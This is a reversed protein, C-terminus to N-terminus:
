APDLTRYEFHYVAIRCDPSLIEDLIARTVTGSSLLALLQAPTYTAVLSVDGILEGRQPEPAPPGGMEGSNNDCGVLVCLLLHPLIRFPHFGPMANDMLSENLVPNMNPRIRGFM